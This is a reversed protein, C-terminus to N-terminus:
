FVNHIWECLVKELLIVLTPVPTFSFSLKLYGVGRM